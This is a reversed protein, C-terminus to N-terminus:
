TLIVGTFIASEGRPATNGSDRGKIVSALRNFASGGAEVLKKRIAKTDREGSFFWILDDSRQSVMPVMEVGYVEYVRTYM